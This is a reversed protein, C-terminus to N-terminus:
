KSLESSKAETKDTMSGEGEADGEIEDFEDELIDGIGMNLYLQHELVTIRRITNRRSKKTSGRKRGTCVTLGVLDFIDEKVGLSCGVVVAIIVALWTSWDDGVGGSFMVTAMGWLAIPAPIHSALTSASLSATLTLRDWGTYASIATGMSGGVFFLPYIIGGTM